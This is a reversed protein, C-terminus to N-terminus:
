LISFTAYAIGGGSFLSIGSLSIPPPQTSTNLAAYQGVWGILARAGVAVSSTVALSRWAPSITTNGNTTVASSPVIGAIAFVLSGATPTIANVPVIPANAIGGASNQDLAHSGALELFYVAFSSASAVTMTATTDGASAKHCLIFRAYTNEQQNIDQTWGAPITVVSSGDCAILLFATNGSAALPQPFTVMFSTVNSGGSDFPSEQIITFPFVRNGGGGSTITVDGTGDDSLTIDTGAVLNLLAQSGNITGNTKLAVTSPVNAWTGDAKLYKLAAADGAAPPPVTGAKGGSGTDGVMRQPYATVSQEPTAGDSQFVIAQDPSSVPPTTQNLYESTTPASM